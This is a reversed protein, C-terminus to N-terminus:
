VNAEPNLENVRKQTAKIEAIIQERTRTELKQPTPPAMKLGLEVLRGACAAKVSDSDSNSALDFLVNMGFHTCSLVKQRLLENIQPELRAHLEHARKRIHSTVNPVAVRMANTKGLHPAAIFAEIYAEDYQYPSARKKKPTDDILLEGDFPMLETSDEQQLTTNM